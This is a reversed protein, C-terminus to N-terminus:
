RKLMSSYFLSISKICCTRVDRHARLSFDLQANDYLLLISDVGCCSVAVCRDDDVRLVCKHLPIEFDLVLSYNDIYDKAPIDWRASEAEEYLNSHATLLVFNRPSQFMSRNYKEQFCSPKTLLDEMFSQEIEAIIGSDLDHRTSTSSAGCGRKVIRCIFPEAM